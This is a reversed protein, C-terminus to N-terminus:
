RQFVGLNPALATTWPQPEQGIIVVAMNARGPGNARANQWGAVCGPLVEADTCGLVGDTVLVVSLKPEPDELAMRLAPLVNTGGDGKEPISARLGALVVPDPLRRWGKPEPERVVDDFTLLRVQLDDTPGGAVEVLAEVAKATDDRMMSGSTDVVFIIRNTLRAATPPDDARSRGFLSLAGLVAITYPATWRSAPIM